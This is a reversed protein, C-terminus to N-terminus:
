HAITGSHGIRGRRGAARVRRAGRRRAARWVGWGARVASTGVLDAFRGLGVDGGAARGAVGCRGGVCRTRRRLGRHGGGAVPRGRRNASGVGRALGGAHGGVSGLVACAAERGADGDRAQGWGEGGRSHGGCGGGDDRTARATPRTAYIVDAAWPPAIRNEAALSRTSADDRLQANSREPAQSIPPAPQEARARGALGAARWQLAGTVVELAGAVVEAALGDGLGLQRVRWAVRGAAVALRGAVGDFADDIGGGVMGDELRQAAFKGAAGDKPKRKKEDKGQGDTIARLPGQYRMEQLQKAFTVQQQCFEKMASVLGSIDKSMDTVNKAAATATKENAERAAEASRQLEERFEAASAAQAARHADGAASQQMGQAAVQAGLESVQARLAASEAVAAQQSEAM